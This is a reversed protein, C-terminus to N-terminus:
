LLHPQDQSDTSTPEDDENDQQSGDDNDNPFPLSVQVEMQGDERSYGTSATSDPPSQSGWQQVPHVGSRGGLWVSTLLQSKHSKKM